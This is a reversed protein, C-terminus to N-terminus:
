FQERQRYKRLEKRKRAAEWELKQEETELVLQPVPKPRHTEDDVAVMVLYAQNILKRRGGKNEKYTDVRVEISTTGSYTVEGVLTVVDTKHASDKFTLNDIAVTVINADCHRLAVIGATMDIWSLLQGGFLCGGANLHEPMIIYTQETRSWSVTRENTELQKM